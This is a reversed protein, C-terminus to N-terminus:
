QCHWPQQQDIEQNEIKWSV